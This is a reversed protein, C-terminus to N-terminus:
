EVNRMGNNRRGEGKEKEIDELSRKIIKKEIEKRKWEIGRGETEMWSMRESRRKEKQRWRDQERQVGRERRDGDLGNDRFAEKGQGINGKRKERGKKKEM